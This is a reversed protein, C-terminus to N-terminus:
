ARLHQQFHRVIIEAAEAPAEYHILHGAGGVLYFSGRRLKKALELQKHVPTIDDLDGAIVATEQTMLGSFDTVTRSVSAAFAESLSRRSTYGSFYMSHQEHIWSRLQRNRTKTMIESMFRVILGNALLANALNKPLIRGARYYALVLKTLVVKSGSLANASIPNILATALPDYGHFIAQATVLTGFSHAVLLSGRPAVTQAFEKLWFGYASLSHGGAFEGSAGFGPLDPVMLTVEGYADSNLLELLSQALPELGHHDGRFGHVLIIKKASEHTSGYQWVRTTVNAFETEITIPPKM